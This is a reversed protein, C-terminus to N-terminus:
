KKGRGVRKPRLHGVRRGPPANRPITKAKGVHRGRGSGFPHDIVNASVASVRPYLKGKAKAKYFM